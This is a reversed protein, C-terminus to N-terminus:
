NIAIKKTIKGTNTQVEVLYMGSTVNSNLQINESTLNSNWMKIKQGLMNYLIVQKITKLKPNRIVISKSNNDMFVLLDSKLMENDVSLTSNTKFTIAYKNLYEGPPLTTQYPGASLDYLQNLDKDKLYVKLNDTINELSDIKITVDGGAVSIIGLPIEKDVAVTNTAQIVYKKDAITWYMDDDFIQYIEADYGWDVADSTNEDITLLIQRHDIQPADFGIRYKPRTDTAATNTTKQKNNAKMFVSNGSAETEFVRQSNKFIITGGDADGQVFFGQSVPLYQQPMKTASGSSSVSPHATALVGGALSYTAYGAQYDALNHSDGGYHEWYYITGTISATGTPGNDIIFKKSDIASPYPNGVLYDNTGSVTVSVDGNNPKGVFVYNQDPSGPNGTGKMLFGEGSKMTGTSGIQQWSSYDGDPADAYKYMWYTSLQIPPGTAGDYGSVYTIPGPSSPNTGDRLVDAISFPTGKATGTKIVPSSWDNYRYRNGVGQQDRELYGASADDFDSGDTQILQSEGDLDIVGNLLLYHSITLSNDANVSLENVNNKLGLVTINRTTNVNNNTEVINWDVKTGNLTTNPLYQVANNLWTAVTDWNGNATSEYPLPATQTEVVKKDKTLYKIRAWNKNNSNDEVTTGYFSNMDYYAKLNSWSRSGIDNKTITQPIIVGNVNTGFAEIEQNMIYHIEDITLASNWIRVEDVAGNFSSISNKNTYLAGITFRQSNSSPNPLSNVTKDLIGDIYLNATGASFTLAVHHWKNDITNTSTIQTSGNWDVQINNGATVKFNYGTGKSIFTGGTGNNKIWTSVTFNNTLELNKDGLLFEGTSFDIRRKAVNRTAKAFTFYKTGDFDYWIESNLGNATLPIVDIINTAGFSANDSVVLTYEENATLPINSTLSATPISVMVEPVDNQSEIIKWKKSVPTFTTTSSSLNISHSIESSTNFAANNNGWVLFDKDTNFSNTNANNTTAIESLGIAVLSSSNVSKSQKQNLRSADDEGIGAINYNFGANATVDWITNGDSNTYNISTGNVGLTIGYKIALYSQVNSRQINSLRSNYTIIEGVRADLSGSWGESRGIWYQSNSVNIFSSPENITNVQDNANFFLEQGTIGANNRANIIGVNDYVATASLNTVGYGTATPPTGSTTGIAYTLVEGSFRATYAGYGIGTADTEQTGPQYDGCFIDNSSVSSTIPVDPILVVFMDQSYFGTTGRLYQRTNDNDTYVQPTTNYNNTFDVVANFNINDIANNKYVPAGTNTPKIADSGNAQTFWTNVAANNAVTTTGDLLDSRLWLELNTKVGGPGAALPASGTGQITFNYPNENSDNNAISINATVTGVVTPAYKVVFTLSNGGIISSSSPQTLVTFAANGSITVIPSGTLNLTTTASGLNTITFTHNVISGTGVSGFNTDDTSSPTTDGDNITSGLGTINIEQVNAIFGTVKVNDFAIDGRWSGARTAKFRIQVINGQYPTLDVNVSLWNSQSSNQSGTKTFIVTNWGGGNVNIEADLTGVDSTSSSSYMHYDFTLTPSTYSTLDITPSTIITLDGTARPSSMEAYLYWSGSSAVNPGTGSSPTGGSQRTWDFNDASSQTWGDLNSEFNAQHITTQAYNIFTFCSILISLITKKM